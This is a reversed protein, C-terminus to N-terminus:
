YYFVKIGYLSMLENLKNLAIESYRTASIQEGNCYATTTDADRKLAHSYESTANLLAKVNMRNQLAHSNNARLTVPYSMYVGYQDHAENVTITMSNM